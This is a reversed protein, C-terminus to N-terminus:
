DWSVRPSDKGGDSRDKWRLEEHEKSAVSEMERSLNRVGFSSNQEQRQSKRFSVRGDSEKKESTICELEIERGQANEEEERVMEWMEEIEDEDMSDFEPRQPM